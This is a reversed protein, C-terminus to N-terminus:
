ASFVLADLGNTETKLQIVLVREAKRLGKHFKLIYTGLSAEILNPNPLAKQQLCGSCCSFPM